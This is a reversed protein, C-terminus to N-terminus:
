ETTNLVGVGQVLEGVLIGTFTTFGTLATTFGVLLDTQTPPFVENVTLAEPPGM